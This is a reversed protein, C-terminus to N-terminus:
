FFNIFDLYVFFNRFNFLRLKWVFTLWEVIQINSIKLRVREVGLIQFSAHFPIGM